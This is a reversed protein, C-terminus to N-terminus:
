ISGVGLEEALDDVVLAEGSRLLCAGTSVLAAVVRGTFLPPKWDGVDGFVEPQALVGETRSAPPWISLVAVGHERLETATDSSLRHLGAKGVSYPLVVRSTPSKGRAAGHSAVNIIVGSRQQVMQKAAFRSAVFHSRLGVDIIDDWLGIPIQWFPEGSWLVRQEPSAFANNVLIDLRGQEGAVREFLAEVEADIGHDCRVAIGEGGLEVVERATQEITGSLSGPDADTSRGTVYVTAGAQGLGLAIGRGLGRSAGTVVAVQGDLSKGNVLV